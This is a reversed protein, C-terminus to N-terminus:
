DLGDLRIIERVAEEVSGVVATPSVGLAGGLGDIWGTGQRGVWVSRLGAAVAGAADFPNSSVLWVKDLQHTLGAMEAMHRYTRPDPKFVGLPDVSVINSESFTTGSKALSPSTKLSSTIMAMTGNSFIYPKLSPTHSVLALGKDADPFTDLGNYADLIREEQDRSLELGIEATAQRFSHRTLESFSRYLGVQDDTVPRPTFLTADGSTSRLMSSHIDGTDFAVDDMSNIRWTYELQYRRAQTAILKAEDEGYIRALENAISETSLLTGYLDFAIVTKAM